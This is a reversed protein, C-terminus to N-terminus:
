NSDASDGAEVPGTVAGELSAHTAAADEKSSKNQIEQHDAQDGEEAADAEAKIKKKPTAKPTARVRRKKTPTPEAEDPERDGDSDGEADVAKTRKRGKSAPTARTASKAKPKAKTTSAPTQPASDGDGGETSAEVEKKINNWAHTIAKTTRGPLEINSLTPKVNGQKIIQLLLSYKESESWGSRSSGGNAPSGKSNSEAM